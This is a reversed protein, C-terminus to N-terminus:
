HYKEQKSKKLIDSLADSYNESYWKNEKLRTFAKEYNTAARKFELMAQYCEAIELYVFGNPDAHMAMENLIETQLVLANEVEGMARKARAISWKLTNFLFVNEENCTAKAKEFMILASAFDHSDFSEWGAYMNLYSRWKSALSNSESNEALEMATKLWKKGQKVPLTISIMFAADISLYNLNTDENALEWAKRFSELAKTPTMSLGYFRGEELHFRVRLKRDEDSRLERIHNEAYGLFEKAEKMKNQLSFLRVAQTVAVIQWSNAPVEGYPLEARIRRETADLNQQDWFGDIDPFSLHM